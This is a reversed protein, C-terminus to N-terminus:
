QPPESDISKALARLEAAFERRILNEIDPLALGHDKFHVDWACTMCNSRLFFRVKASVSTEGSQNLWTIETIEFKM